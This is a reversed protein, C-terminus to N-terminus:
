ESEPEANMLRTTVWPDDSPESKALIVSAFHEPLAELFSKFTKGWHDLFPQLNEDRHALGHCLGTQLFRQISGKLIQWGMLQVVVPSRRGSGPGVRNLYDRIQNSLIILDKRGSLRGGKLMSLFQGATDAVENSVAGFLQGNDFDPMEMACATVAKILEARDGVDSNALAGSLDSDSMWEAGRILAGDSCNRVTFQLGQKERDALYTEVARKATFYDGQTIVTTENVGETEFKPRAATGSATEKRFQTAFETKSEQGYVSFRSHHRSKDQYGYDTGFLFINRFGFAFALALAANTCTPTCGPIADSSLGLFAPIYYENSFYFRYHDFLPPVLPNVSITTLLTIGHLGFQEEIDSLMEYIMYDADLEVHFDPRIGHSLLARLGTGASIVILKDRNEKLGEIRSDLSPGSGVVAVPMDTEPLHYPKVYSGGLRLNHFVNRFGRLEFDYNGWNAGVVPLDKELAKALRYLEVNALHNYYSSLYPYLPVIEAVKSGLVKRINEESPNTSICFSISKGKGRFRSCIQEWDVTFLTLAFREADPEFVVADIVESRATLRDIHYGLGCGLFVVSPLVNGRYYGKFTSPTVKSVQLSERVYRSAFRAGERSELYPPEMSVIPQESPNSKIFEQVEAESYERALHRYVSRGSDLMDVDDRGPTVVLECHRPEFNAFYEFIEPRYKQFYALNKQKRRIFPAAVDEDNESM